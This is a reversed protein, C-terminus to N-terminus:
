GSMCYRQVKSRDQDFGCVFGKCCDTSSVCAQDECSQGTGPSPTEDAAAPVGVSPPDGVGSTQPSKEDLHSVCSIPGVLGLALAAIAIKANM